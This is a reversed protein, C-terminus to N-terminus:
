IEGGESTGILPDVYKFVDFGNQEVETGVVVQTALAIASLNKPTFLRMLSIEPLWRQVRELGLGLPAQFSKYMDLM